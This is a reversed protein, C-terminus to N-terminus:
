RSAVGLEAAFDCEFHERGCRVVLLSRRSRKPRSSARTRLRHILARRLRRRVTDLGRRSVGPRWRHRYGVSVSGSLLRARRDRHYCAFPTSTSVVPVHRIKEWDMLSAVLDIPEDENVNFLDTAMFQEVLMYHNQWGGAEDLSATEWESM